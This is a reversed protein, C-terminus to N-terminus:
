LLRKKRISGLLLLGISCALVLPWETPEPVATVPPVVVPPTTTNGTPTGFQGPTSTGLPSLSPYIVENPGPGYENVPGPPGPNAGTQAQPVAPAYGPGDPLGYYNSTMVPDQPVVDASAPPDIYDFEPAKPEDFAIAPPRFIKTIRNACRTRAYNKGDTIVVEGKCVKHKKKSYYVKDGKRYSIYVYMDEKLTTIRTDKGFDAYHLAVVPDSERAMRLEEPTFVGGPVVSYRFVKRPISHAFAITDRRADPKSSHAIYRGSGVILYALVLSGTLFNKFTLM